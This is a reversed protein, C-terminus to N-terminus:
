SKEGLIEQKEPGTLKEQRGIRKGGICTKGTNRSRDKPYTGAM